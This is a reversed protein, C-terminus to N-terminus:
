RMGAVCMAVRLPAAVSETNAGAGAGTGAGALATDLGLWADLASGGPPSGLLYGTRRSDVPLQYKTLRVSGRLVEVTLSDGGSRGHRKAALALIQQAPERPLRCRFM